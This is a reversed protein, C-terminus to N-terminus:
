QSVLSGLQMSTNSFLTNVYSTWEASVETAATSYLDYAVSYAAEAAAYTASDNTIEYTSLTAYYDGDTTAWTGTESDWEDGVLDIIYAAYEATPTDEAGEEPEAPATPLEPMTTSVVADRLKVRLASDTLVSKATDEDIGYTSAITAYDSSGFYQEAYAAVEEDSVTLGRSEADILTVESQAYYVLEDPSPVNYTGDENAAAEISSSQEIVERATVPYTTGNYTYTAITSDLEAESLTTKGALSIIGDGGLSLRGGFAGAALGVVLAVVMAIVLHVTDFTRKRAPADGDGKKAVPEPAPEPEPEPEREAAAKAEFEDEPESAAVEGEVLTEEAADRETLEDSKKTDDTM